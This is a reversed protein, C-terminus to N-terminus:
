VADYQTTVVVAAVGNGSERVVIIYYDKSEECCLYLFRKQGTHIWLPDMSPYDNVEDDADWIVGYADTLYVRIELEKDPTITIRYKGKSRLPVIVAAVQHKTTM